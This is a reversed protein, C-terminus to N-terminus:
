GKTLVRVLIMGGIIFVLLGLLFMITQFGNLTPADKLRELDKLSYGEIYPFFSM